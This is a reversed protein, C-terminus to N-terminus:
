CVEVSSMEVTRRAFANKGRVEDHWGDFVYVMGCGCCGFVFVIVNVQLEIRKVGSVGRRQEFCCAHEVRNQKTAREAAHRRGVHLAVHEVHGVHADVVVVNVARDLSGHVNTHARARECATFNKRKMGKERVRGTDSQKRQVCEHQVAARAGEGEKCRSRVFHNTNM